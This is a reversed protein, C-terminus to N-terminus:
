GTSYYPHIGVTEYGRANMARVLTQMPVANSEYITAGKATLATSVGSLLEFETSCTNNGRVSSYSIGYPYKECLQHFFPIADMNSELSFTSQLDSFAENMIIIINPKFNSVTDTDIQPLYQEVDDPFDLGVGGSIVFHAIAGYKHHGDFLLVVDALDASVLVGFYMLNAALIASVLRLLYQKAEYVQKATM